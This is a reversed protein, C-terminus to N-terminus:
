QGGTKWKRGNGNRDVYPPRVRIEVVVGFVHIYPAWLPPYAPNFSTLTVLGNEAVGQLVKVVSGHEPSYCAIVEGPNAHEQTRVVIRAGDPIHPSMSDGTVQYGAHNGRWTEPIDLWDIITGGDGGPGASLLDYVPISRTGSTVDTTLLRANGKPEEPMPEGPGLPVFLGTQDRWEHRTIQLVERIGERLELGAKNFDRYGLELKALYDPTTKVGRASLERALAPRSYRRDERWTKIVEGLHVAEPSRDDSMNIGPRYGPGQVTTLRQM